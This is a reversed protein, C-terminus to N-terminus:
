RGRSRLENYLATVHLLKEEHERRIPEDASQWRDPHHEMVLRRYTRQIEKDTVAISLGLSALLEQNTMENPQLLALDPGGAALTEPGWNNAQEPESHPEAEPASGGALDESGDVDALKDQKHTRLRQAWAEYTDQRLADDDSQIGVDVLREASDVDAADSDAQDQDRHDSRTTRRLKEWVAM